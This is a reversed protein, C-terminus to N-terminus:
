QGPIECPGARPDFNVKDEGIIEQKRLSLSFFPPQIQTSNYFDPDNISLLTM